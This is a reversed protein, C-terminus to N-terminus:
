GIGVEILLRAGHLHGYFLARHLPTWGSELDRAGIEVKCERLLWEVVQWHGRSAAMHLVSRGFLDSLTTANHCRSLFLQIQRTSGRTVATVLQQAHHKSRCRPGCDMQSAAPIAGKPEM